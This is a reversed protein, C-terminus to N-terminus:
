SASSTVDITAIDIVTDVHPILNQLLGSSKLSLVSVRLATLINGVVERSQGDARIDPSGRMASSDSDTQIAPLVM